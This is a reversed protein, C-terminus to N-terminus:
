AFKRVKKTLRRVSARGNGVLLTLSPFWLVGRTCRLLAFVQRM